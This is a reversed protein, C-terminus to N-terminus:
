RGKFEPVRKEMFARRGEIYDESAFCAEVMAEVEDVQRREPDKTAERIAAKAAKVTLPANAAMQAALEQVAGDLEDVPVVRNVLGMDAAESASFRRASLMIESAMAPGVLSVLRQIGAFGYGLGLRAAPIAFRGDDATIRIDAALATALGGGMCFGRIKAVLPKPFEVLARGAAASVDDFRQRGEPTSRHTEFESIDAGSVFAKDGAGQMVVVRVDDDAAFAGMAEVVAENMEMKMANRREPNNFTMWGIGGEVDALLFPTPLQLSRKEVSGDNRALTAAVL